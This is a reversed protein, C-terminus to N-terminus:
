RAAHRFEKKLASCEDGLACADVLAAGLDNELQRRGAATLGVRMPPENVPEQVRSM